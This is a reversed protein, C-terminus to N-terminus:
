PIELTVVDGLTQIIQNLSVYDYLNAEGFISCRLERVRPQKESNLRVTTTLTQASAGDAIDSMPLVARAQVIPKVSAHEAGQTARTVTFRDPQVTREHKLAAAPEYLYFLCYPQRINM